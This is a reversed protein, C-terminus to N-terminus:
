RRLPDIGDWTGSSAFPQFRAFLEEGYWGGDRTATIVKRHNPQTYAFRRASSYSDWLSFTGLRGVPAEGVGVVALLGPSANLEDSVAPGAANFARWSHRKVDARTIIAIPGRADDPAQDIEALVAHGRWAGHGGAARLRVHWAELARPWARSQFRDLAAEDDWISFLATRQLDAGPGTHHGDGTGLVRWFRLGPTRRLAVRSPGLHSMAALTSRHRVLHFSGIPM